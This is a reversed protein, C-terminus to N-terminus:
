LSQKIKAYRLHRHFASLAAWVFGSFGDLFGLRFFYGAFFEYAPILSHRFGLKKGAAMFDGAWITTYLECKSLYDALDRYPRHIIPNKLRGIIGGNLVYNEHVGKFPALAVKDRRFLRLHKESGLGGFRLIRGMFSVQFPILWGSKNTDSRDSMDSPDSWWLLAAIEDRLAPTVREDADLSLVWTEQCCSLGFRRQETFNDFPRPCVRAGFNEAIQRTKDTSGGDVVVVEQALLRISELAGGLDEEENTALILVSLPAKTM